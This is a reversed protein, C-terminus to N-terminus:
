SRVTNITVHYIKDSTAGKTDFNYIGHDLVLNELSQDNFLGPILNTPNPGPYAKDWDIVLNDAFSFALVRYDLVPSEEVASDRNQLSVWYDKRILNMEAIKM